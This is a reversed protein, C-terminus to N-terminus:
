NELDKPAHKCEEEFYFVKIIYEVKSDVGFLFQGCDDTYAFTVPVMSCPDCPKGTKKFLKVLANKAAEGNPLKVIGHIAARKEPLLKLEVDLEENECLCFEYRKLKYGM